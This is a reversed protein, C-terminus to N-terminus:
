AILSTRSAVQRRANYAVRLAPAGATGHTMGAMHCGACDRSWTPVISPRCPSWEGESRSPAPLSTLRTCPRSELPPPLDGGSTSCGRGCGARAKGCLQTVPQAAPGRACRPWRRRPIEGDEDLWRLLEQLGDTMAPPRPPELVASSSPEGPRAATPRPRDRGRHRCGPRRRAGDRLRCCDLCRVSAHHTPRRTWEARGYRAAGETPRRDMGPM